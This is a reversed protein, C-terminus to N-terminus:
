AWLCVSSNGKLIPTLLRKVLGLRSRAENEGQVYKPWQLELYTKFSQCESLKEYEGIPQWGLDGYANSWFVWTFLLAIFSGCKKTKM